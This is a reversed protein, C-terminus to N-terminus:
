AGLHDVPVIRETLLEGRVAKADDPEVIAVDALRAMECAALTQRRELQQLEPKEPNGHGCGVLQDVHCFVSDPQHIREADLRRVQDPRGHAAHNRLFHRQRKGLPHRESVEIM